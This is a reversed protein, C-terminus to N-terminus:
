VPPENSNDIEHVIKPFKGNKCILGAVPQDFSVAFGNPGSRVVKGTIKIKHQFEFLPFIVEIQQDASITRRTNIFIGNAGINKIIDRFVGENVRYEAIIYAPGRLDDRQETNASM